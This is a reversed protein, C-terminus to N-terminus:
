ELCRGNSKINYKYTLLNGLEFVAKKLTYRFYATKKVSTTLNHVSM